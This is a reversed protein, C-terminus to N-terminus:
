LEEGPYVIIQGYTFIDTLVQGRLNRYVVAVSRTEPELELISLLEGLIYSGFQVRGM